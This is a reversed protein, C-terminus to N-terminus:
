MVHYRVFEPLPDFYGLNLEERFAYMHRWFQPIHKFIKLVFAKLLNFTFSGTRMQKNYQPCKQLLVKRVVRTCQLFCNFFFYRPKGHPTVGGWYYKKTVIM